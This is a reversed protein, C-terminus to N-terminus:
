SASLPWVPFCNGIGQFPAEECQGEGRHDPQKEWRGGASGYIARGSTTCMRKPMDASILRISVERGLNSKEGESVSIM